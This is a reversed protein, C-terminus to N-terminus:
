ASPLNDRSVGLKLTEAARRHLYTVLKAAAARAGYERSWEVFAAARKLTQRRRSDPPNFPFRLLDPCFREILDIHHQGVCRIEDPIELMTRYICTANVPVLFPTGMLDMAQHLYSVRGGVFVEWYLRDRWDLKPVINESAWMVWHRFGERIHPANGKTAREFIIDASPPREPIATRPFRKWQEGRGVDIGDGRVILDGPQCFAWQDRIFFVRTMGITQRASHRDYIDGLTDDAPRPRIAEHPVGAAAALLPPLSRDGDSMFRYQQTFTQIPINGAIAAALLLRTDQGATLSLYISRHLAAANQLVTILYSGLRDLSEEYPVEGQARIAMPRLRPSATALDLRQTPLVKFIGEFSTMPVPVSSFTTPHPFGIERAPGVVPDEFEALLALSSSLWLERAGGTATMSRYHCPLLASADGHVADDGILLWRDSAV